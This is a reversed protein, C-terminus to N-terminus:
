SRSPTNPTFTVPFSAFERLVTPITRGFLKIDDSFFHNHSPLFQITLIKGISKQLFRFEVLGRGFHMSLKLIFVLKPDLM